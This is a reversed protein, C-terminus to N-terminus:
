ARRKRRTVADCCELQRIWGRERPKEDAAKATNLRRRRSRSFGASYARHIPSLVINKARRKGPMFAPALLRLAM